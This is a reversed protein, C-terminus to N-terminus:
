AIVICYAAIAQPRNQGELFVIFKSAEVAAKDIVTM